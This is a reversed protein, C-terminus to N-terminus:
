PLSGLGNDRAFWGPLTGWLSGLSRTAARAQWQLSTGAPNRRIALRQLLLQLAVVPIVPDGPIEGAELFEQLAGLLDPFTPQRPTTAGARYRPWLEQSQLSPVPEGFRTHDV